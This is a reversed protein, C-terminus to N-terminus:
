VWGVEIFKKFYELTLNLENENSTAEVKLNNEGIKLNFFSSNDDILNIINTTEDNRHLQITKNDFNTNIYIKDGKFMEINILIYEQTDINILKPNSLNANATFNAELGTEVDGDNTISIVRNKDQTAFEIGEETLELPFEFNNSWSELTATDGLTQWYPDYCELEIKFKKVRFYSGRNLQVSTLAKCKLKYNNFIFELSSLPNVMRSLIRIAQNFNLSKITGTISITRTEISSNSVSLGVQQYGKYTNHEAQLPSIILDNIRFMNDFIIEENLDINKLKFM